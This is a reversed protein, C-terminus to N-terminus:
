NSKTLPFQRNLFKRMNLYYGFSLTTGRKYLGTGTSHGLINRLGHDYQLCVSLRNHIEVSCHFSLGYDLSSYYNRDSGNEPYLAGYYHNNMREVKFVQSPSNIRWAAYPGAGILLNTMLSLAFRQVFLVPSQLYSFGLPRNSGTCDAAGAAFRSGWRTFVMGSRLACSSGRKLPIDGYMGLTYGAFINGPISENGSYGAATSATAGAVAQLLQSYSLLPLTILFLIAPLRTM